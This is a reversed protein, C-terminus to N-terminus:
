SCNDGCDDDTTWISKVSWVTANELMMTASEATAAAGAGGAGGGGGGGGGAALM